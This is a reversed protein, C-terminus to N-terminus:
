RCCMRSGASGRIIETLPVSVGRVGLSADGKAAATFIDRLVRSTSREAVTHLRRQRARLVLTADDLMQRRRITPSPLDRWQRRRPLSVAEVHDLTTTLAQEIAKSRISCSPRDHGRAVSAAGADRAMRKRGVHEPGSRPTWGYTSGAIFCANDGKEPNVALCRGGHGAACGVGQRLLPDRELESGQPMIDTPRWHM